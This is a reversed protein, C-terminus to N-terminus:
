TNPEPQPNGLKNLGQNCCWSLLLAVEFQLTNQNSEFIVKCVVGSVFVVLPLYFPIKWPRNCTRHDRQSMFFSKLPPIHCLLIKFYKFPFDGEISPQRGYFATKWWLDDEMFIMKWQLNDRMFPQGGDFTTKLCLYDEMSPQRDMPPRRGNFPTKWQLDAETSPRGGDFVTKFRLDAEMLPQRGDFTTKWQFDDEM